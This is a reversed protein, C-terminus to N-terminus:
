ENRMRAEAQYLLHLVATGYCKLLQWVKMIYKDIANVGAMNIMIALARFVMFGATWTAIDPPGRLEIRRFAGLGTPVLGSMVLKRQLRNGHPGFIALDPSPARDEDIVHVACSLQERTPREEKPCDGEMKEEYVGYYETVKEKSILEATGSLTQDWVEVLNCTSLTSSATKAHKEKAAALQERM